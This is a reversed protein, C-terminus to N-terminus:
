KLYRLTDDEKKYQTRKGDWLKMKFTPDFMYNDPHSNLYNKIGRLETSNEPYIKIREQDHLYELKM